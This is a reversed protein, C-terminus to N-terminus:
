RGTVSPMLNNFRSPGDPPAIAFPALRCHRLRRTVQALRSSHFAMAQIFSNSRSVPQIGGALYRGATFLGPLCIVLMQASTLTGLQVDFSTVHATLYRCGARVQTGLQPSNFNSLDSPCLVVQHRNNCTLLVALHCSLHQLM